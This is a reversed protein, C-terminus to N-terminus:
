KSVTSGTFILNFVKSPEIIKIIALVALIIITAFFYSVALLPVVSVYTSSIFEDIYGGLPFLLFYHILYIPLSKRGVYAYFISLKYKLSMPSLGKISKDWRIFLNFTIIVMLVRYAIRYAAGIKPSLDFYQSTVFLIGIMIIAFTQVTSNFVIKYFLDKYKHAFVGLLFLGLYISTLYLSLYDRLIEPLISYCVNLLGVAVLSIIVFQIPGNWKNLVPIILFYLLIIEFLVFTFWYGGKYPALWLENFTLNWHEWLGFYQNYVVWMSSVIVMPLILQIFRKSLIPLRLSNNESLKMSFWGSVFFFLPMHIQDITRITITESGGKIGFFIFHGMVVLTIAVGKMLDFLM